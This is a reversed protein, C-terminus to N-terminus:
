FPFGELAKSTEGVAIDAISNETHCKISKWLDKRVKRM